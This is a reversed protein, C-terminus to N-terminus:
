WPSFLLLIKEKKKKEIKRKKEKEKKRFGKKVKKKKEILGFFIKWWNIIFFFISKIIPISFLIFKFFFIRILLILRMTVGLSRSTWSLGIGRFSVFLLVFWPNSIMISFICIRFFHLVGNNQLDLLLHGITSIFFLFTLHALANWFCFHTFWDFWSQVRFVLFMLMLISILLWIFLYFIVFKKFFPKLFM